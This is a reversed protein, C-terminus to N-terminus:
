EQLIELCDAIKETIENISSQLELVEDVWGKGGAMQINVIADVFEHADKEMRDLEDVILEKMRAILRPGTMGWGIVDFMDMDCEGILNRGNGVNVRKGDESLSKVQYAVGMELKFLTEKRLVVWDGIKIKMAKDM